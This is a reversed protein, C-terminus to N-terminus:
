ISTKHFRFGHIRLSERTKYSKTCKNCIHSAGQIHNGEIHNVVKQKQDSTKGCVKCAYKGPEGLNELMSNITDDLNGFTKNTQASDTSTDVLLLSKEELNSDICDTKLQVLKESIIADANTKYSPQESTYQSKSRPAETFTSYSKDTILGKIKLEGAMDLFDELDERNVEVEGHYIYSMLLKLHSSKTRRMFLMPKPHDNLLLMDEFMSSTASLIVRHSKFHHGDEGVLTVDSFNDTRVLSAYSTQLNSHFEEWKLNLNHSSEM